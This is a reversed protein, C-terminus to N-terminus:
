VSVNAEYERLKRYLSTLGINLKRAALRKDNKTIELTALIYKRELESLPYIDDDSKPKPIGKRLAKPLDELQIQSTSCLAVAREIVNHLERVNGPWNYILLHEIAAPSFGNVPRGMKETTKGLFFRALPLIDEVRDRLPVVELEIVCLRYFLDQRFRGSEIEKALDCNTAAIVKTDVPRTKSEGVRRIQKEQLTRLLKTQTGTPMEGIEDLFITGGNAAEFLGVRDRDAGTFAGKIHGFFESELLTEAIASCNVAVFPRGARSSEDHIFRAIMEKGVGSEGTILVTSDVKAARKAIGLVHQMAPSNAIIGPPYIDSDILKKLKSLRRESRRLKAVIDRLIGDITEEQFFLLQDDIAEGWDERSRSEIHCLADGKGRCKHEICYTERGSIRSSYGSVYGTLTWCVPENAIGFQLVHQEAEYSNDWISTVHYLPDGIVTSKFEKVDVVGQLMHLVPGYSPEKALDPYNTALKDAILWGHAYGFRTLINRAASFGLSNILERRFLGMAVVDLLIVRDGMLQIIGGGPNFSLLNRLDLDSAKM